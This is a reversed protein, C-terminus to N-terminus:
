LVDRPKRPGERRPDALLAKAEQMDATHFGETFLGYIESLQQRTGEHKCRRQRLRCLSMTARLELSKAQQRRAVEIAQQFCVEAENEHAQPLAQMLEGRLRYIEAAWRHEGTAQIADQAAALMRLGEEVQGVKGCAEALLALWYPRGLAAGIDDFAHLGQRMHMVGEAGLGQRVLVWGRLMTGWALWQAFEQERSLAMLAEVQENVAHTERRFQHFLAAFGLAHAVTHPHALEHALTLAEANQELAQDPYGLFWLAQAAYSLGVVGPDLGYRFAHSRHRLPDYLRSVQEGEVTASAPLCGALVPTLLLPAARRARERILDIIGMPTAALMASTTWGRDPGREVM